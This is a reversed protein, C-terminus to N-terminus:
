VIDRKNLQKLFQTYSRNDVHALLAAAQPDVIGGSYAFEQHLNSSQLRDCKCIGM